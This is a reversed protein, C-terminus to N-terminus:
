RLEGRRLWLAWAAGGSVSLAVFSYAAIFLPSSPPDPQPGWLRFAVLNLVVYVAYAVGMPLARRRMAWIGTAYVLLFIGFVPGAILNPIGDLRIGFLVFGVGPALKLPKLLNSIALLAFLVAFTTLLPGRRATSM